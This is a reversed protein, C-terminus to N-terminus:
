SKNRVRNKFAEQNQQSIERQIDPLKSADVEKLKSITKSRENIIAKSAANNMDYIESIDDKNNAMLFIEQAKSMKDGLAKDETKKNKEKKANENQLLLWGDFMDDDDFVPDPPPETSEYASDYMKSFVVLTRQEDTWEAAAKDFLFDKNSSWYTKWIDSRAIRRFTPIDISHQAIEFAIDELEQTNITSENFYKIYENNIKKFISNVLLFENKYKDCFGEVTFNDLSHRANYFKSYRENLHKLKARISNQKKSIYFSKFLEIKTQDIQKQLTHFEKENADSWVRNEKLINIIDTDLIWDSFKYNDYLNNYYLEAEYQISLSPYILYLTQDKYKFILFGSIIRALTLKDKNM